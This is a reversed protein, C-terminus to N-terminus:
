RAGSEHAGYREGSSRATCKAYLRNITEELYSLTDAVPKSLTEGVRVSEPQVALLRVNCGGERVLMDVFFRLSVCHTNTATMEIQMPDLLAGEGPARGMCVADVLLVSDPRERVLVGLYNEPSSGADICRIGTRSVLRSAFLSGVGDDSRLTNGIGVIIVRARLFRELDSEFGAHWQQDLRGTGMARKM